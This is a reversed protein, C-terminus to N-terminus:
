STHPRQKGAAQETRKTKDDMECAQSHTPPKLCASKSTPLVDPVKTMIEKNPLKKDFM